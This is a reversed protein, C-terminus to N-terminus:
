MLAALRSQADIVEPLGSDANKWLDLFKEYNELARRKSGLEEFIRGLMYFSKAYVNGYEKRNYTIRSIWEFQDRAAELDGSEHYARGMIDILDAPILNIGPCLTKAEKILLIAQEYDGKELALRAKITYLANRLRKRYPGEINNRALYM